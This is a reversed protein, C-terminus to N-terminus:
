KQLLSKVEKIKEDLNEILFSLKGYAIDGLNKGKKRLKISGGRLLWNDKLYNSLSENLPLVTSEHLKKLAIDYAEELEDISPKDKGYFRVSELYQQQHDYLNNRAINYPAIIQDNYYNLATESMFADQIRPMWDRLNKSKDSFIALESVAQNMVEFQNFKVFSQNLSDALNELRSNLQNIEKLKEENTKGLINLKEQFSSITDRLINQLSDIQTNKLKGEEKIFKMIKELYVREDLESQRRVLIPYPKSSTAPVLIEGRAPSIITLQDNNLQIQIETIESPLFVEFIGDDDTLDENYGIINVRIRALGKNSEDMIRGRFLKVNDANQGSLNGTFITLTIVALLLKKRYM